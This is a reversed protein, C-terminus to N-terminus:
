WRTTVSIVLVELEFAYKTPEDPAEEADEDQVVKTVMLVPVQVM